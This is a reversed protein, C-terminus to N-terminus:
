IRDNHPNYEANRYWGQEQATKIKHCNACLIQCKNVETLINKWSVRDNMARAINFSKTSPIIHDFDLVRMDNNGCKECKKDALYELMKSHLKEKVLKNRKLANERYKSGHKYYYEQWTHQRKAIYCEKCQSHLKGRMKDRYFYNNNSKNQFCVSCKRIDFNNTM